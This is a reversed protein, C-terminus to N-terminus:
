HHPCTLDTAELPIRFCSHECLTIIKRSNGTFVTCGRSLFLFKFFLFFGWPVDKRALTWSWNTFCILFCVVFSFYPLGLCAPKGSLYWFAQSVFVQLFFCCNWNWLLLSFHEPRFAGALVALSPVVGLVTLIHYLKVLESCLYCEELWWRNYNSNWDTHLRYTCSRGCKAGLYWSATIWSNGRDLFALSWSSYIGLYLPKISPLPYEKPFVLSGVPVLLALRLCLWVTGVMSFCKLVCKGGKLIGTSESLFCSITLCVVSDYQRVEFTAPGKWPCCVAQWLEVAIAASCSHIFLVVNCNWPILRVPFWLM